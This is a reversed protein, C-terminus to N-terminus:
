KKKLRICIEPHALIDSDKVAVQVPEFDSNRVKRLEGFFSAPDDFASGWFSPSVEYQKIMSAINEPSHLRIEAVPACSPLDGAYDMIFMNQARAIAQECGERTLRAEGIRDTIM